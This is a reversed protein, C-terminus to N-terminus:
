LKKIEEKTLGTLESIVNIDMKKELMKKAIQIRSEKEGQKIGEKLGQELGEERAGAMGFAYDIEATERLEALRREAADGSLYELEEEAKKVHKNDVMKLDELNRLSIFTLWEDLKSSITKCKKRFKPLQIFHIEFKDTLIINEYDRKLRVIEHFPGEEFEDYNLIWIGITKQIKAYNNNRELGSTYVRSTYFLSRELTNKYDRIQMEINIKTGNNVTALIDLRGIKDLIFNTELQVETQVEINEINIDPLIAQLLDKLIDSNKKQSFIRKFVYDNTPKLLDM